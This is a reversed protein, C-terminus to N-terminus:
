AMSIAKNIVNTLVLMMREVDTMVQIQKDTKHRNQMLTVDHHRADVSHVEAIEDVALSVNVKSHLPKFMEYKLLQYDSLGQVLM